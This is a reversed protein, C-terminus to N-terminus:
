SYYLDAEAKRRRTLGRLVKGGAKDWKAFENRITPDSPNSNVKQLLTSSRLNKLGCNYAFSVLASFQNSNVKQKLLAYTGSELRSLILKFLEDARQQTIKDGKKVSVGNEYQTNGWGITWVGISDQYATLVCAEFSKILEIGKANVKNNNIIQQITGM